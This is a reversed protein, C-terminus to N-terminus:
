PLSDGGADEEHEEGDDDDPQIGKFDDVTLPRANAYFDGLNNNGPTTILQPTTTKADPHNKDYDM